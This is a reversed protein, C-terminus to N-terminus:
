FQVRIRLVLSLTRCTITQSDKELNLQDRPLATASAWATLAMVSRKTIGELKAM